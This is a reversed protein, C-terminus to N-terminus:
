AAGPQERWGRLLYFIAVAGIITGIPVNALSLVSIVLAVVKAWPRYNKVGAGVVLYIAVVAAATAFAFIADRPFPDGKAIIPIAIAAGILLTLALTLWGLLRLLRGARVTFSLPVAQSM